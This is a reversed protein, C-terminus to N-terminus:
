SAVRLGDPRRSELRREREMLEAARGVLQVADVARLDEPIRQGETVFLVPLGAQITVDLVGGLSGAEDLKTIIAGSFASAGLGEILARGQSAQSVASLVLLLGPVRPLALIMELQGRLRLDYQSMGATDIYVRRCDALQALARRLGRGDDATLLPLSLAEAFTALQEQAGIRYNDLTILGVARAGFRRVDRAALRAIASTKGVGTSGFLAVPGDPLEGSGIPLRRALRGLAREWLQQLDKGRLEDVIAGALTRSLGLRRLRQLVAAQASPRRASDRWNARGLEQELVGRLRQLERQLSKMQWDDGATISAAERPSSAASREAAALSAGVDRTATIEVLGGRRRNALILADSGLAARVRAMASRTDPGTYKSIEM